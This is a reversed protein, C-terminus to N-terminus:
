VNMICRNYVRNYVKNIHMVLGNASVICRSKPVNSNNVFVVVNHIEYGKYHKRVVNCHYRNQAIPNNMYKIEGNKNQKWQEDYTSGTVIGGWLKTEIVFVLKCEHNIVLHDIQTGDLYINNIVIFEESLQKLRNAVISEGIDGIENDNIRNYMPRRNIIMQGDAQIYLYCVIIGILMIAENM